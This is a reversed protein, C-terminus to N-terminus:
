AAGRGSCVPCDPDAKLKVTQWEMQLADLLMLRGALPAGAGTLVKIAEIAQMSGIIGVLPAVVGNQSCTEDMEGGTGYLCRYCPDGPRGTFVSIQGETRIAAGSVLPTQTAVCADNVAFRTAFNDSGDVVLDAGAVQELLAKGELKEACKLVRCDPNIQTLTLAASDVKQMGIRESTHIIQRQLNSLDVRDYDALVLEGVGAAALYMAVPSGLGGLGVILVRSALLREQGSFDISPLMIQRSYRLLQQDNM